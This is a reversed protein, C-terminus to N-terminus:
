AATRGPRSRGGGASRGAARVATGRRTPPERYGTVTPFFSPPAVTVLGFAREWQSARMACRLALGVVSLRRVQGWRATQPGGRTHPVHRQRPLRHRVRDAVEHVPRRARWRRERGDVVQAAVHEGDGVGPVDVGGALGARGVLVRDRRHGLHGDVPAAPRGRGAAASGRVPRRRDDVHPAVRGRSREGPGPLRHDAALAQGLQQAPVPGAPALDAGFQEGRQAADAGLHADLGDARVGDQM